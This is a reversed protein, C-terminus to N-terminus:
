FGSEFSTNKMFAMHSRRQQIGAAVGVLGAGAWSWLKNSCSCQSLCCLWAPSRGRQWSSPSGGSQSPSPFSWSGGLSNTLGRCPVCREPPYLQCEARRLAARSPCFFGFFSLFADSSGSTFFEEPRTEQLSCSPLSHGGLGM